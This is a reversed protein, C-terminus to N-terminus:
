TSGSNDEALKCRNRGMAKAQYLAADARHLIGEFNENIELAAVGISVTINVPRTPDLTDTAVSEVAFAMRLREAAVLAQKAPTNPLLAVFEEGGFRCFVDEVRLMQEAINVFRCLIVDGTDHGFRDNIQKFKDLDMMLVSLPENYRRSRAIVKETILSFSRRNLAGTLPDRNAQEDLDSQLREATMLVMGLTVAITTCLWWLLMFAAVGHPDLAGEVPTYFDTTVARVLFIIANITYLWGTARMAPPLPSASLLDHAIQISFFAVLIANGLAMLGVSYQYQAVVVWALIVIGLILLVSPSLPARGIFLRFGDWSLVLGIVVLVQALSLVAKWTFIGYSLVLILALAALGGAWAWRGLGSMTPHMRWLLLRAGACFANALAVAVLLSRIDFVM